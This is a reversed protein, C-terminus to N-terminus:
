VLKKGKNHFTSDQNPPDSPKLHSPSITQLDGWVSTNTEDLGFVGPQEEWGRKVRQGGLGQIPTVECKRELEEIKQYFM